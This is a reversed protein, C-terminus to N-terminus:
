GNKGGLTSTVSAFVNEESQDADIEVLTFNSRLHEVLESLREQEVAMRRAFKETSDDCRKRALVRNKCVEESARLFVVVDPHFDMSQAQVVNRPFGDLVFGDLGAVSKSAIRVALEDALPQWLTQEGFSKLIENGLPSNESILKRVMDGISIHVAGFYEAIKKGQTGKGTGPFGLLIIKKNKM